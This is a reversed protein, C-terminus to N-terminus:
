TGCNEEEHEEVMHLLEGEPLERLEAEVERFCASHVRRGPGLSKVEWWESRPVAARPQDCLSCPPAQAAATTSKRM